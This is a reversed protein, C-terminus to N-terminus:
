KGLELSTSARYGPQIKARSGGTTILTESTKTLSELSYRTLIEYM